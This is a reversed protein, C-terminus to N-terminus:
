VVAFRGLEWFGHDTALRTATATLPTERLLARRVLHMGRLALYRIPRARAGCDSPAIGDVDKRLADALRRRGLDDDSSSFASVAYDLGLVERYQAANSPM